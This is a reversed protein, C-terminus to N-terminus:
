GSVFFYIHVDLQLYYMARWKEFGCICTREQPFTYLVYYQYMKSHLAISTCYISDDHTQEDM